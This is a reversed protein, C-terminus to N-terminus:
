RAYSAAVRISTTDVGEFEQYNRSLDINNIILDESTSLISDQSMAILTSDFIIVGSDGNNVKVYDVSDLTVFKWEHRKSKNSIFFPNAVFSSSEGPKPYVSPVRLQFYDEVTNDDWVYKQNDSRVFKAVNSFADCCDIRSNLLSVFKSVGRIQAEVAADYWRGYFDYTLEIEKEVERQCYLEFDSDFCQGQITEPFSVKTRFRTYMGNSDSQKGILLYIEQISIEGIVKQWSIEYDGPYFEEMRYFGFDYIKVESSLSEDLQEVAANVAVAMSARDGQLRLSGSMDDLPEYSDLISKSTNQAHAGAAIFFSLLILTLKM